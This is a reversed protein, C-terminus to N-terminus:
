AGRARIAAPSSPEGTPAPPPAALPASEADDDDLAATWLAHASDHGGAWYVSDGAAWLAPLLFPMRSADVATTTASCSADLWNVGRASLLKRASRTFWTTAPLKM